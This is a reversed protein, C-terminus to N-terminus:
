SLKLILDNELKETQKREREGMKVREEDEYSSRKLGSQKLKRLNGSKSLRSSVREVIGSISLRFNVAFILQM